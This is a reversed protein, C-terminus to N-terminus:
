FADIISPDELEEFDVLPVFVLPDADEEVVRHNLESDLEIQIPRSCHACETKITIVLSQNRLHGQVFPM